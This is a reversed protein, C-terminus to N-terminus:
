RQEANYLLVNVMPQPLYLRTYARPRDQWEDRGEPSVLEMDVRVVGNTSKVDCAVKWDHSAKRKFEVIDFLAWDKSHRGREFRMGSPRDDSFQVGVIKDEFDTLVLMRSCGGEYSGDFAYYFFSDAPFAPCDM